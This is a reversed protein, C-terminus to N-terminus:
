TFFGSIWLCPKVFQQDRQLDFFTACCSYIKRRSTFLLKLRWRTSDSHTTALLPEEDQEEAEEEGQIAAKMARQIAKSTSLAVKKTVKMLVIFTKKTYPIITSQTISAAKEMVVSFDM